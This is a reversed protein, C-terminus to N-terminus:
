GIMDVIDMTLQFVVVTAVECEYSHDVHPLVIHSSAGIVQQTKHTSHNLGVDVIYLLINSKYSIYDILM